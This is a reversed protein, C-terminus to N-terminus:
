EDIQEGKGIKNKSFVSVALLAAVTSNPLLFLAVEKFLSKL